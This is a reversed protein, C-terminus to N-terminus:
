LKKNQSCYVNSSNIRPSLEHACQPFKLSLTTGSKSFCIDEPISGPPFTFDAFLKLTFFKFAYRSFKNITICNNHILKKLLFFTSM